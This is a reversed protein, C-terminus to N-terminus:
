SKIKEVCKEIYFTLCDKITLQKLALFAKFKRKLDPDIEFNIQNDKDNDKAMKDEPWYLKKADKENLANNM